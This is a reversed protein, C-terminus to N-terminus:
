LIELYVPPTPFLWPLCGLGRESPISSKFKWIHTKNIIGVLTVSVLLIHLSPWPLSSSHLLIISKPFSLNLQTLPHFPPLSFPIHHPIFLVLSCELFDCSFRSSCFNGLIICVHINFHVNFSCLHPWDVSSFMPFAAQTVEPVEDM